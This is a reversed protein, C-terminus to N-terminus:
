QSPTEKRASSMKASGLTKPLLAPLQRSHAFRVRPAIRSRNMTKNDATQNLKTPSQIHTDVHDCIMVISDLQLGFCRPSKRLTTMPWNPLSSHASLSGNLKHNKKRRMTELDGSEPVNDHTLFSPKGHAIKDRARFLNRLTQFPRCGNDITINLEAAIAAMKERNPKRELDDWNLVLAYGLHNIFAEHKFAAFMLCSILEYHYGARKEKTRDPISWNGHSREAFMNVHRSRSVTADIKTAM